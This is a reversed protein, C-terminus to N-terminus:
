QLMVSKVSEGIIEWNHRGAALRIGTHKLLAQKWTHITGTSINYKRAIENHSLEGTAIDMLVASILKDSKIM